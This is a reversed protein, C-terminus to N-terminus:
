KGSVDVSISFFGVTRSCLPMGPIAGGRFCKILEVVFDDTGDRLLMLEREM